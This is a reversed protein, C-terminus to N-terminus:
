QLGEQPPPRLPHPRHPWPTRWLCRLPSQRATPARMGNPRGQRLLRVVTARATDLLPTMTATATITTPMAAPLTTRDRDPYAHGLQRVALDALPLMQTGREVQNRVDM